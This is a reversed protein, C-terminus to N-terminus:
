EKATDPAEPKSKPNKSGSQFGKPGFDKIKELATSDYLPSKTIPKIGRVMLRQRVTAPKIGLANAMEEVTLGEMSNMDSMRVPVNFYKLTKVSIRNVSDFM